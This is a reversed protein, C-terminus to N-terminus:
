QFDGEPESCLKLGRLVGIGAGAGLLMWPTWGLLLGIGLFGLSWWLSDHLVAIFFKKQGIWHYKKFFLIRGVFVFGWFIGVLSVLSLLWRLQLFKRKQSLLTQWRTSDYAVDLVGPFSAVESLVDDIQAAKLEMGPKWQVEWSPPLLAPDLDILDKNFLPDQRLKEFAQFSPVYMAGRVGDLKNLLRGVEDVQLQNGRVMVIWRFQNFQSSWSQNLSEKFFVVGTIFLSVTLLFGGWFLHRWFKESKTQRLSLTGSDSGPRQSLKSPINIKKPKEEVIV